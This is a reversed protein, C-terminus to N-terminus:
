PWWSYRNYNYNYNNYNYNNYNYYNNYNNYYLLLVFFLVYQGLTPRTFPQDNCKDFRETCPTITDKFNCSHFQIDDIAIDGNYDWGRVGSIVVRATKNANEEQYLSVVAKQWKNGRNGWLYLLDVQKHASHYSVIADIFLQFVGKIGRLLLVM